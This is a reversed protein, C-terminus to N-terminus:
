IVIIEATKKKKWQFRHTLSPRVPLPQSGFRRVNEPEAGGRHRQPPRAPLDIRAESDPSWVCLCVSVLSCVSAGESVKHSTKQTFITLSLRPSFSYPRTSLCLFHISSQSSLPPPSPHLLKAAAWGSKWPALSNNVRKKGSDSLCSICYIFCNLSHLCCFLLLLLLCYSFNNWYRCVSVTQRKPPQQQSENIIM